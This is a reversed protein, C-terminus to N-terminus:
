RNKDTGPDKTLKEEIEGADMKLVVALRSSVEQLKSGTAYTEKIQAPGRGFQIVHPAPRM